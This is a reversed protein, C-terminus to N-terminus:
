LIKNEKELIEDLHNIIYEQAKEDYMCVDYVRGFDSKMKVSSIGINSATDTPVKFKKGDKHEIEKLYGKKMLWSTIQVAKLKKMHKSDIAENITYTFASISIPEQSIEISSRQTENLFFSYKKRKDIRTPNFDLKLLQDIIMAADIFVKKNFSSNLVSDNLTYGTKPDKGSALIELNEKLMILEEREM